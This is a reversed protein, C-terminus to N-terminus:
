SSLENSLENEMFNDLDNQMFEKQLFINEFECSKQIEINKQIMIEDLMMKYKDTQIKVLDKTKKTTYTEKLYNWFYHLLVIILLSFVATQFIYLM